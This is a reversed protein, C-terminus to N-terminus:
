GTREVFCSGHLGTFVDSREARIGRVIARDHHEQLVGSQVLVGDDGGFREGLLRHVSDPFQLYTLNGKFGLRDFVYDLVAEQVDFNVVVNGDFASRTAARGFDYGKVNFQCDGVVTEFDTSLRARSRILQNPFRLSPGEEESFGARLEYSGNDIVVTADERLLRRRRPRTAPSMQLALVDDSAM